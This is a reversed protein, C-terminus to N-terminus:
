DGDPGEDVELIEEIQKRAKDDLDPVVETGRRRLIEGWGLAGVM